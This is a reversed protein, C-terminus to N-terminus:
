QTTDNGSSPTEMRKALEDLSLTLLNRLMGRVVHADTEISGACSVSVRCSSEGEPEIRFVSRYESM